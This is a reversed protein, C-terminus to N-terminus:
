IQTRDDPERMSRRYDIRGPRLLAPDLAEVVNSTMVFLVNEPASFGDIVNLLGSLTVGLSAIEENKGEGSNAGRKVPVEGATIRAKGSKMCDMDEFLIVWNAPVDNIGTRITREKVSSPNIAYIHMEFRAAM